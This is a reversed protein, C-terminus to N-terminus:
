SESDNTMGGMGELAKCIKQGKDNESYCTLCNEGDSMSPYCGFIDYVANDLANETDECKGNCRIADVGGSDGFDYIFNNTIYVTNSDNWTGGSLEIDWNEPNIGATIDHQLADREVANIINRINTLAESAKSKEVAMQYQPLAIGALIGIILVVVLLEILTFGKINKM